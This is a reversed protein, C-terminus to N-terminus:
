IGSFSMRFSKLPAMHYGSNLNAKQFNIPHSVKWSEVSEANEYQRKNVPRQLANQLLGRDCLGPAGGHRAIQRDHIIHVAPAPVWVPESM